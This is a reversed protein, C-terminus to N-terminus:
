QPNDNNINENGAANKLPNFTIKPKEEEIAKSWELIKEELINFQEEFSDSVFFEPKESEIEAFIADFNAFLIKERRSVSDSSMLFTIQDESKGNFPFFKRKVRYKQLGVPDANYIIEAIDYNIADRLFSPAESENASKLDSLLMDTTKLKFDSPRSHIVKINSEVEGCLIAFVTVFEKYLESDKETYAELTDYISQMNTDIEFATKEGSGGAGGNDKKIFMQSNFVAEHAKGELQLIYENQFKVLEIPPTKYVMFNNLDFITNNPQGEEPMKLYIVDNAATHTLFGKGNCVSCTDSTTKIIGKDCSRNRGEGPCEPAYQIKQPFVHGAITLDLESVAKLTKQFYPMADQWVIVFTRGDTELDPKYGIRFVPPYGIKPEFWTILFHSSGVKLTKQKNEILTGNNKFYEPDIQEFTVTYKKGYWTFKKGDQLPKAPDKYKRFKIDTKCLLWETEGNIIKFNIADESSIVFPYPKVVKTLSELKWEIAVWANPDIFSLHFKATKLWYDLGKNESRAAGFFGDIMQQVKAKNRENKLSLGRKIRDNRMVKFFPNKISSAIAPTIAQTIECRLKFDEESERKVFRRLLKDIGKGTTLIRYEEALAVTRSYDRHKESNAIMRSILDLIEQLTQDM